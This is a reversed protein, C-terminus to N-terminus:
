PRGSRAIRNTGGAPAHVRRVQLARERVPHGGVWPGGQEGRWRRSRPKSAPRPAVRAEDSAMRADHEADLDVKSQRGDTGPRPWIV